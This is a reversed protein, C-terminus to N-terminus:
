KIVKGSLWWLGYGFAAAGLPAQAVVFDMVSGQDIGVLVAITEWLAVVVLGVRKLARKIERDAQENIDKMSM